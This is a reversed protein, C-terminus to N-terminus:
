FWGEDDACVRRVIYPLIRGRLGYGVDALIPIYGGGSGMDWTQWYLTLPGVM